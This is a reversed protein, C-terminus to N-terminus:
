TRLWLNFNMSTEWTQSQIRPTSISLIGLGLSRSRSAGLHRFAAPIGFAGFVTGCAKQHKLAAGIMASVLAVTSCDIVVKPRRLEWWCLHCETAM